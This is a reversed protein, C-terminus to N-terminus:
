TLIVSGAQPLDQCVSPVPIGLRRAPFPYPIVDGGKPLLVDAARSRQESFWQWLPSGSTAPELSM